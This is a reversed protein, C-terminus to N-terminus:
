VLWLGIVVLLTAVAVSVMAALEWAGGPLAGAGDDPLRSERSTRGLEDVGRLEVSAFRNTGRSSRGGFAQNAAALATQHDMGDTYLDARSPKVPTGAV